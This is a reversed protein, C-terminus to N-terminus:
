ASKIEIKRPRDAEPRQMEIELVGNEFNAQVTDPDVRFPLQITREFTGARRERRHWAVQNDNAAFKREGQITLTDERVTLNLDDQSLGPLEATVVISNDGLWVNVPPYEHAAMKARPREFLSNMNSQLRQVDPFPNWDYNRSQQLM